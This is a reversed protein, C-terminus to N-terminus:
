RRLREHRWALVAAPLRIACSVPRWIRAVVLGANGRRAVRYRQRLVARSPFVKAWAYAARRRAGRQACLKLLSIVGTGHGDGELRSAAYLTTETRPLQLRSLLPAAEPMLSLRYGVEHAIGLSRALQGALDWTKADVVDLGRRLDNWAKSGPGNAPSIHLALHLTRVVVSPVTVEVNAVTLTETDASVAPWVLQPALGQMGHLVRHLDVTAGDSSREFTRAHQEDGSPMPGDQLEYGLGVLIAQASSQSAPSVLLDVDAYPRSSPDDAYLWRGIAPGKLLIPEIQESRLATVVDATWSDVRLRCAASRLAAANM